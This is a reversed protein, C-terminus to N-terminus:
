IIIFGTGRVDEINLEDAYVSEIEPKEIEPLLSYWFYYKKMCKNCKFRFYWDTGHIAYKPMATAKHENVYGCPCKPKMAIHM